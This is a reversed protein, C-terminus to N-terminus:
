KKRTYRITTSEMTHARVIPDNNTCKLPAQRFDLNRFLLGIGCHPSLSLVHKHYLKRTIDHTGVYVIIPITKMASSGIKINKRVCCFIYKVTRSLFICVFICKRNNRVTQQEAM